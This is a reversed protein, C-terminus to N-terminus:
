GACGIRRGGLLRLGAVTFKWVGLELLALEPHEVAATPDGHPLPEAPQARVLGAEREDLEDRRHRDAQHDQEGREQQEVARGGDRLLDRVAVLRELAAPEGHLLDHAVEARLDAEAVLLLRDGEGVLVPDREVDVRAVARLVHVLPRDAVVRGGLANVLVDVDAGAGIRVEDERARRVLGAQEGRLDLRDEVVAHRPREEAVVCEVDAAQWPVEALEGGRERDVVRDAGDHHLDAERDERPNAATFGSM